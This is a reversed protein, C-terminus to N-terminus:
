AAPVPEDTVLILRFTPEITAFSPVGDFHGTPSVIVDDPVSVTVTVTVSALLLVALLLTLMVTTAYLGGLKLLAIESRHLVCISNCSSPLRQLTVVETEYEEQLPFFLM